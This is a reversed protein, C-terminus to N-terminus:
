SIDRSKKSAKTRRKKHFHLFSITTSFEFHIYKPTPPSSPISKLQVKVFSIHHPILFQNLQIIQT